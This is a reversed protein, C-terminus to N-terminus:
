FAIKVGLVTRELTVLAKLGEPEIPAWTAWLSIPTEPISITVHPGLGVFRKWEVGLKLWTTPAATAILRYWVSDIGTTGFEVVGLFSFWQACLGM